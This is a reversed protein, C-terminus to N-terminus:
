CSYWYQLHQHHIKRADIKTKLFIPFQCIFSDIVDNKDVFIKSQRWRHTLEILWINIINIYHVQQYLWHSLSFYLQFLPYHNPILPIVMSAMSTEKKVNKDKNSTMYCSHSMGQFRQCTGKSVSTFRKTISQLAKVTELLIKQTHKPNPTNCIDVM